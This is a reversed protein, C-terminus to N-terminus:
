IEEPLVTTKLNGFVDAFFVAAPADAIEDISMVTYPVDLGDFVRKAVRPLFEFSRFQTDIVYQADDHSILDHTVAFDMVTPIDCM